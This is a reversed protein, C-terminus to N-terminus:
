SLLYTLLHTPSHTPSHTGPYKSQKIPQLLSVVPIPASAASDAAAVNIKTLFM